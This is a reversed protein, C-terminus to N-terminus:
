CSIYEKLTHKSHKRSRLKKLANVKIQRVREQTLGFEIGIDILSDAMDGKIGFYYRLIEAERESLTTLSRELEKRLSNNMLGAEPNPSDEDSLIHYMNNESDDNFSADM